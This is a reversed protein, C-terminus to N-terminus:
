NIPKARNITLFDDTIILAPCAVIKLKAVVSVRCRTLAETVPLIRVIKLAKQSFLSAVVFLAMICYAIIKKAQFSYQLDRQRQMCNRM